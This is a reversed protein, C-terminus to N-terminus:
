DTENSRLRHSWLAASRKYGDPMSLEAIEDERFLGIGRYEHPAVPDADTVPLCGYTVVFVHRDIDDIYRTWADLITASAVARGTQEAIERILCEEPTEEPELRGGPPEWGGHGDQLLLVRGDRIVIGKVSVSYRHPEHRFGGM